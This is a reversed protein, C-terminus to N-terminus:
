LCTELAAGTFQRVNDSTGTVFSQPQGNHVLADRFGTTRLRNQSIEGLNPKLLNNGHVPSGETFTGYSPVHPSSTVLPTARDETHESAYSSRRSEPLSESLSTFTADSEVGSDDNGYFVSRDPKGAANLANNALGSAKQVEAGIVDIIANSNGAVAITFLYRDKNSISTKQGSFLKYAKGPKLGDFLEKQQKLLDLTEVAKAVKEKDGTAEAMLKEGEINKIESDLISVIKKLVAKTIVKRDKRSLNKDGSVQKQFEDEVKDHSKNQTNTLRRLKDQYDTTTSLSQIKAGVTGATNSVGSTIKRTAIKTGESVAKATWNFGQVTKVGAIGIASLGGFLLFGVGFMGGLVVAGIGIIGAGAIIIPAGAILLGGVIGCAHIQQKSSWEFFEKNPDAGVWKALKQKVVAGHEALAEKWGKRQASRVEEDSIVVWEDLDSDDSLNSSTSTADSDVSNSRYPRSANDFNALRTPDAIVPAFNRLVEVDRQSNVANGFPKDSATVSFHSWDAFNDPFGPNSGAEVNNNDWTSSLNRQAQGDTPSLNDSQAAGLVTTSGNDVWHEDGLDLQSENEKEIVGAPVTANVGRQANFKNNNSFMKDEINIFM